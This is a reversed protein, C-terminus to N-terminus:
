PEERQVRLTILNESGSALIRHGGTGFEAVGGGETEVVVGGSAECLRRAEQLAMDAAAKDVWRLVVIQEGSEHGAAAGEEFGTFLPAAPRAVNLIALRGTFYVESGPVRGEIPLQDLLDPESGGAQLCGAVATGIELVAAGLDEFESEATIVALEPGSWFHMYYDASTGGNGLKVPHGSSSRAFSYIGFADGDMTYIEVSISDDGRVYRQVAVQVFGYEHYIEAGGNIYIFLDDGVYVETEGEAIWAGINQPPCSNEPTSCGGVLLLLLLCAASCARLHFAM